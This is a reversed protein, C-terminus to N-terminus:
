AARGIGAAEEAARRMSSSMDETVTSQEEVAAATSAVYESVSQIAGKIATLAGVVQAAWPGTPATTDSAVLAGTTPDITADNPLANSKGGGGTNDIQADYRVYVKLRHFSATTTGPLPELTTHM